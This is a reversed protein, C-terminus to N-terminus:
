CGVCRRFGARMVRRCSAASSLPDPRRIMKRQFVDNVLYATGAHLAILNSRLEPPTRSWRAGLQLLQSQPQGKRAENISESYRITCTAVQPRAYGEPELNCVRSATKM